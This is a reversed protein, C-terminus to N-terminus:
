KQRAYSVTDTAVAMQVCLLVSAFASTRFIYECTFKMDCMWVLVRNRREKARIPCCSARLQMIVTCVVNKGLIIHTSKHNSIINSIFRYSIRHYIIYIIHYIIHYIHYSIIYSIIHYIIHYIHYSIHFSIIHYIHHYIFHYSIIHYIICSINILQLQTTV